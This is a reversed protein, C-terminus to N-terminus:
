PRFIAAGPRGQDGRHYPEWLHQTIPRCIVSANNVVTQRVRGPREIEPVQRPVAHFNRTGFRSKCARAMAFRQRHFLDVLLLLTSEEDM